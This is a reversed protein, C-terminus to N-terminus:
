ALQLRGVNLINKSQVEPKRKHARNPHTIISIFLNTASILSLPSQARDPASISLARM